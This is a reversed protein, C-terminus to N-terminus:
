IQVTDQVVEIGGTRIGGEEARLGRVVAEQGKNQKRGGIDECPHKM